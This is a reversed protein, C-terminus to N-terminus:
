IGGVTKGGGSGAPTGEVPAFGHRMTNETITKPELFQLLYDPGGAKSGIGSMKFGGFPQRDVIAGTISRNIYLNGVNFHRRAQEIHVPSRSYLGGTLAYETGNAIALAEEFTAARIIAVVPGFIEEQAISSGPPVHDFLTPPVFFGRGELEGLEAHYVLKAEREGRGIYRLSKARSDADIVPGVITGSQDAPGTPLSRTTEILRHVFTDAVDDLVIVRSCASCKQGCYGFASAAVGAVAEDLDADSDIIIANKGGMEAIVRKLGPQGPRWRSGEQYLKLGVERSGTFAIIQVQPHSVLGAGVTEGRGPLYNVVGPPFGAAECARMLMAGVVSSQEAPKMVVTNGAVLAATTMGALIALPFNWPAIVAAVGRPQYVYANEEGPFDRRRPRDALRQMERAYFECFDIAEAVDADAERWTKGVELIIWAALEFRRQRLIGGLRRVLGAREDVSRLRWSEFARHAAQVAAELHEAGGLCVHGVVEAGASPNVSDEREPTEVPKGDIVLPYTAGFHARVAALADQMSQRADARAFDSLPESVFPEMPDEEPDVRVPEPLPPSEPRARAPDALLRDISDREIFSRRLFSDNSTNELLRRILYAMGPIMEGFPTYIRLTYGMGAVAAKLPDGMGFLMQIEFERRGAGLDQAYAMAAALSRVNHSALAPRLIARLDLLRRALREYSADSEWKQTWVPIPWGHQIAHFTEYDWYAGKVLRVAIPTGRDRVWEALSELDDATERLYAQLVIGVDRVERFESESLVQRFAALTLDKIAYQEMDVNVFAGHERAVRLIPRLRQLCRHISGEPDVADFHPELSSLKLSVNLRPMPRDAGQDAQESPAWTEVTPGLRRILDIYARAYRDAQEDSSTAEGLLDLSFAMGRERLRAVTALAEEPTVGAIFRHAMREASGRALAALQRRYFAGNTSSAIVRAFLSPLPVDPRVLYEKLHRLVDEDSRLTPLVDVFRFLQVKRQPDGTSWDTLRNMWWEAHFLSPEAERARKLIEEGIARTRTELVDGTSGSGAGAAARVTQGEARAPDPGRSTATEASHTM